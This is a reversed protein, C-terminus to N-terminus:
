DAYILQDLETLFKEREPGDLVASLDSIKNLPGQEFRLKKRVEPPFLPTFLKALAGLLAPLNLLLTPGALAPYLDSAKTSAASLAKRFSSDGLLKTGSLDNATVLRILKGSAVSRKDAVISNVEKCYLFFDSLEDATLESMLSLDDIKGARICYVLDGTRSTTTVIQSSTIYKNIISAHPAAERVPANDWKETEMAKSVANRAADCLGKGQNNRWELNKLLVNAGDNIDGRKGGDYEICYRLYFIDEEPVTALGAAKAKDQL